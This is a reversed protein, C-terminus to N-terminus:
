QGVHYAELLYRFPVAEPHASRGQPAGQGCSVVFRLSPVARCVAAIEGENKGPAFLASAGCNNLVYALKGPKTTPNVVTFVAGAKLIAFIAVVAEISNPLWLAVRDGRQVGLALLGNALRNAQEEVEAYTLRQDDCVLAVKDPFQEASQQLFQNVLM